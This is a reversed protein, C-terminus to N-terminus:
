CAPSGEVRGRTGSEGEGVMRVQNPAPGSAATSTKYFLNDLTHVGHYPLHSRDSVFSIDLKQLRLVSRSIFTAFAPRLRTTAPNSNPRPTRNEWTKM